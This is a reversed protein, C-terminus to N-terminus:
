IRSEEEEYCEPFDTNNLGILEWKDKKSQPIDVPKGDKTWIISSFDLRNIQRMSERLLNVYEFSIYCNGPAEELERIRDHYLNVKEVLFKVIEATRKGDDFM